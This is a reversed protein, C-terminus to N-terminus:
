QTPPSSKHHDAATRAALGARAREVVPTAWPKDSYLKIIAERMERAAAPDTSALADATDLRGQLVQVDYRSREDIQAQLQALQQRALKLSEQDAPLLGGDNDYLALLAQLREAALEPNLKALSMAELYGRDVLSANEVAATSRARREAQRGARYLRIAERHQKVIPARPDDPYHALFSEIDRDAAQLSAVDGPVVTNEIRAYMRDASAPQMMWWTGAALATVAIGLAVTQLVNRPTAHERPADTRRHEEESVTVFSSAPKETAAPATPVGARQEGTKAATVSVLDITAKLAREHRAAATLEHPGAPPTLEYEGSDADSAADQDEPVVPQGPATMTASSVSVIPPQTIDRTPASLSPEIRQSLGHRMAELRRSLVMATAIRQDPDKILLDSIIVQLEEPVDPAYRRVPDPEAFRQLQLMELLTAAKFPPRGALLTYMVGGLSYLDCRPTIPRGDTQEPAMYEATGLVGGVATLGTSGFLKAIGFDSLKVQGEQSVLLNAPKIDRHIVGRDHAHKLARCTQIAYDTVERWAFKRGAQLDDELSRGVILEMAYFLHNDEEGFGYLRVINPHRLKRLTEIESKFRERFGDDHALTASLIKIAAPEGTDRLIGEYVTGMGGRGLQRNIKYPGLQEIQM